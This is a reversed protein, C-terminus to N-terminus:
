RAAGVIRRNLLTNRWMKLTIMASFEGCIFPLGELCQLFLQIKKQDQKIANLESVM